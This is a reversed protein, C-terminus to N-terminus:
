ISDIYNIAFQAAKSGDGVATSIQRLTTNTVDGAAFLGPKTTACKNDVIIYNNDDLINLKKLFSTIPDAGIYPFVASVNLNTKKNTIVNNITISNVTNDGQISELTHDLIFKIKKNQKTKEVVTTDARFGQRRHILFVESAFKTLYAAEELAGYGGGIVAIPKNKYFSGDCVACYSVGKGYFEDEGIAGIKREITGTAVIVAKAIISEDDLLKIEWLNGNKVVDIVEGPILPVNLNQTQEFFHMSLEPGLVTKFGSYNEIESTKIMKGGPPGKDIMCTKAEARQSYIAATMGAPGAGIIAIDYERNEM